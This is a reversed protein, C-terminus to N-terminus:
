KWYDNIFAKVQNGVASIAAAPTTEGRAIASFQEKMNSPNFDVIGLKKNLNQTYKELTDKGHTFDSATSVSLYNEDHTGYKLDQQMDYFLIVDEPKEVGAPIATYTFEFQTLDNSTDPGHPFLVAGIEFDANQLISGWQNYDALTMAAKGSYFVERGSDWGASNSDYVVNKINCWEQLTNLATLAQPSDLTYKLTKTDGTRTVVGVGNAHCLTQGFLGLDYVPVLGYTNNLAAAKKMIEFLKDWTLKGQSQLTYLDEWGNKKFMDINYLLVERYQSNGVGYTKGNLTSAAIATQDWRKMTLDLTELDNLPTLMNKNAMQLVGMDRPCFIDCMPSGALISTYLAKYDTMKKEVFKCNLVEQIETLQKYAETGPTTADWWAIMTITRGKLDRARDKWDDTREVKNVTGSGGQPIKNGSSTGGGTSANSNSESDSDNNMESGSSNGESNSSSPRYIYEISVDDSGNGSSNRCSTLGVSVILTLIISIIRQPKKM